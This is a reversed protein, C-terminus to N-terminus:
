VSRFCVVISISNKKIKCRMLASLKNQLSLQAVLLLPTTFKVTQSTLGDFVKHGRPISKTQFAVRSGSTMRITIQKRYISTIEGFLRRKNAMGGTVKTVVSRM